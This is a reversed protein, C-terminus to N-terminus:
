PNLWRLKPYNGPGDFRWINVDDWLDLDGDATGSQLEATTKDVTEGTAQAYKVDGKKINAPISLSPIPGNLYYKTYSPRYTFGKCVYGYYGSDFQWNPHSSNCTSAPSYYAASVLFDDVKLGVANIGPNVSKDFMSNNLNVYFEDPGSPFSSTGSTNIKGVVVGTYLPNGVNSVHGILGGV